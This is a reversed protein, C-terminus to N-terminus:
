KLSQLSTEIESRHENLVELEEIRWGDRSGFVQVRATYEHNRRHLHGWHEVSGQVAWRGTFWFHIRGDDGIESSLSEYGVLDVAKIDAVAGGQEQFILGQRLQLYLGELLDGHVAQSLVDYAREESAENFARYVTEILHAGILEGNSEVDFVQSPSRVALSVQGLPWCITSLIGGAVLVLFVRRFRHQSDLRRTYFGVPCIAVLVLLSVVPLKWFRVVPVPIGLPVISPLEKMDSEWEWTNDGKWFRVRSAGEDNVIVTSQMAAANKGYIEWPVVVSKPAEGIEYRLMVGIRAQYVNVERSPASAAFDRIDVGFFQIRDLIPLVRNGNIVVPARERFFARISETAGMQEEVSLRDPTERAIPLWEEFTLVPVLVEHRVEKSTVYIFSYLASYSSIGLRRQAEEQKQRRLTEWRSENSEAQVVNELSITLAQDNMLQSPRHLWESGRRVTVDMMTPVIVGGSGFRQVLTLFRLRESIAYRIRFVVQKEMLAEQPILGDGISTTDVGEITGSLARGEGDLLVLRKLLFDRHLESAARFADPSFQAAKKPKLQHFLVLDELMVDLEVLVSQASVDVRATTLSIPHAQMLHVLACGGLLFSVGARVIRHTLRHFRLQGGGM